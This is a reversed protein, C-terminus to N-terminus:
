HHDGATAGEALVFRRDCYGCDVYGDDGTTAGVVPQGGSYTVQCNAIASYSEVAISTSGAVQTAGASLTAANGASPTSVVRAPVTLTLPPVALSSLTSLNLRSELSEVGLTSGAGTHRTYSM